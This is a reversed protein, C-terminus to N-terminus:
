NPKISTIIGDKVIAIGNNLWLVGSAGTGVSLDGTVTLSDVNMTAEIGQFYLSSSSKCEITGDPQCNIESNGTDLTMTGYSSFSFYAGGRLSVTVSGDATVQMNTTSEHQFHAIGTKKNVRYFNGNSDRRGYTNPYDDDFLTTRNLQNIEAGRYYPATLDRSPFEVRVQSGLDPIDVGGNEPSNGSSSSSLPCAWPLEDTTMDTYPAIRVKIRCLKDPDNNDEVTGLYSQEAPNKKTNLIPLFPKILM